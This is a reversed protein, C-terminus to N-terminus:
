TSCNSGFLIATPRSMRTEDGDIAFAAISPAEAAPASTTSM